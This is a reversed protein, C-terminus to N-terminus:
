AIPRSLPQRIVQKLKSIMQEPTFVVRHESFNWLKADVLKQEMVKRRYMLQIKVAELITAKRANPLKQIGEDVDADCEWLGGLTGLKICLNTVEVAKERQRRENEARMRLLSERRADIIKEQREKYTAKILRADKRTQAIIEAREKDDKAAMWEETKNFVWMAFSEITLTNRAPALRQHYDFFGFISECFKNTLPLGKVIDIPLKEMQGGPLFEKLHNRFFVVLAPLIIGLSTLAIPDYEENPEFVADWWADKKLYVDPFSSRGSLLIEPERAADELFAVLKRYHEAMSNLDVAKDELM